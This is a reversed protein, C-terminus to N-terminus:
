KEVKHSLRVSNPRPLSSFRPSAVFLTHKNFSEQTLAMKVHAAGGKNARVDVFNTHIGQFRDSFIRIYSNPSEPFEYSSKRSPQSRVWTDSKLRVDM